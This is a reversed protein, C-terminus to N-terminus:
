ESGAEDAKFAADYAKLINYLLQGTVRGRYETLRSREVTM